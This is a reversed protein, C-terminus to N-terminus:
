LKKSLALSSPAMGLVKQRKVRYVLAETALRKKPEEKVEGKIESALNALEKSPGFPLHCENKFSQLDGALDLFLNGSIQASKFNEINQGRLLKPRVEQIWNLLQDNDWEKVEEMTPNPMKNMVLSDDSNSDTTVDQAEAQTPTPDTEM